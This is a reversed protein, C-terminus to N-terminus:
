FDERLDDASREVNDMADDGMANQGMNQARDMPDGSGAQPMNASPDTTGGQPMNGSKSMSDLGEKAKDAGMDIKDSYKGGTREDLQEAGKDVASDAQDSHGSLMQKAKDVIGM